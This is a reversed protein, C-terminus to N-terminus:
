KIGFAMLREYRSDLLSEESHNDLAALEALLEARLDVGVHRGPDLAGQRGDGLMGGGRRRKGRGGLADGLGGGLMQGLLRQPDFM